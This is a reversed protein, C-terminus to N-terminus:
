GGKKFANLHLFKNYSYAMVTSAIAQGQERPRAVGVAM